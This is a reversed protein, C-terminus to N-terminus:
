RASAAALAAQQDPPLTAWYGPDFGPPPGAPAAVPAPAPPPPQYAPQAPPQYAPQPPQQYAPTPQAYAQQPAPAAPQGMLMANAAQAAPPQYTATYIKKPISGKGQEDRIYTVALVGGVQLGPAGAARVAERVARLMDAKIYFARVGDDNQDARQDTQVQVVLQNRPTGDDFFKPNGTAKDTQQRVEPPRVIAGGVTTGYARDPFQASKAGGGMLFDNAEM